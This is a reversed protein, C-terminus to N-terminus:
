SPSTKNRHVSILMEAEALPIDCERVVEEIDAGLEVLKFARSYLKDQPQQNQLQELLNKQLASEQQLKKIRHELQKSVQENELYYNKLNDKIDVFQKKVTKQASQLENIFLKQTEVQTKLMKNIRYFHSKQRYIFVSLVIFLVFCISLIILPSLIFM